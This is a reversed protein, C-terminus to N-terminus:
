DSGADLAGTGMGADSGPFGGRANMAACYTTYTGPVCSQGSPCDAATACLQYHVMDGAPCQDACQASFAQAPAFGPLGGGVAPGADTAAFAFCCV